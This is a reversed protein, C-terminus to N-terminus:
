DVLCASVGDKFYYSLEGFNTSIIPKKAACYEGIKHHFGAIDQVSNRMPVILLEASLYMKILENHPVNTKLIIDGNYGSNSIRKNIGDFEGTKGFGGIALMLKGQYCHTERLRSYLEIVFEIVPLYGLSGCYM